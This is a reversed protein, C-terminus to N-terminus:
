AFQGTLSRPFWRHKDLPQVSPSFSGDSNGGPGAQPSSHGPAAPRHGQPTLRPVPRRPPHSFPRRRVAGPRRTQSRDVSVAAKCPATRQLGWAEPTCPDPRPGPAPRGGLREELSRDDGKGSPPMLGWRTIPELKGPRLLLPASGGALALASGPIAARGARVGCGPERPGM